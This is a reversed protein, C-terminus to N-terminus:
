FVYIGGRILFVFNLAVICILIVYKLWTYKAIRNIGLVSLIILGPATVYFLRSSVSGWLLCIFPIITLPILFLIQKKNVHLPRLFFAPIFAWGALLIAFLSRMIYSAHYLVSAGAIGGKMYWTLYNYHFIEFIILQWLANIFIFPLNFILLFKIKTKRDIGDVILITCNFILFSVISYEKYFFGLVSIAMGLWVWQMKPENYFRVACYLALMYFLWAGIEIFPDIGFRLLPYGFVFLCVSAVTLFKRKKFFEAFFLFTVPILLIYTIFVQIFFSTEFDHVFLNIGATLLPQLPKLIRHYPIPSVTIGSFLKATEIYSTYDNTYELTFYHFKIFFVIADIIM